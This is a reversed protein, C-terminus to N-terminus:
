RVAGRDHRQAVGVTHEHGAVAAGRGAAVDGVAVHVLDKRGVPEGADGDGAGGADRDLHHPQELGLELVVFLQAAVRQREFALGVLQRLHDAAVHPM